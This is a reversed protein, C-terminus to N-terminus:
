SRGQIGCWHEAQNVGNTPVPAARRRYRRWLGGALLMIGGVSGLALSSSEPTVTNQRSGNSDGGGTPDDFANADLDGLPNRDKVDYTLAPTPWVHGLVPVDGISPFKYFGVNSSVVIFAETTFGVLFPSKLTKKHDTFNSPPLSMAVATEYADITVSAGGGQGEAAVTPFPYIFDAYARSSFTLIVIAALCLPFLRRM